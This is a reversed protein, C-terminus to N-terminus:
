RKKSDRHVKMQWFEYDKNRNGDILDEIKCIDGILSEAFDELAKIHAEQKKSRFELGKIQAEQRKILAEQELIIEQINEEPQTGVTEQLNEEM